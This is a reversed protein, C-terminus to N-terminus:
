QVHDYSGVNPDDCKQLITGLDHCLGAIQICLINRKDEEEKEVQKEASEFKEGERLKKILMTAFEGALYCVRSPPFFAHLLAIQLKHNFM